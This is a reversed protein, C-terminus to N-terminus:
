RENSIMQNFENFHRHAENYTMEDLIFEGYWVFDFIRTSELFKTKISPNEIEYQYSYNTKNANWNIIGQDTMAKLNKLYLFRVALRYNGAKLSESILQDFDMNNVDEAIFDANNNEMKRKGFLSKISIGQTRLVLMVILAVLLLTFLVIFFERTLVKSFTKNTVDDLWELFNLWWDPYKLKKSEGYQFHKDNQYQKIKEKPPIRLVPAPENITKSALTDQGQVYINNFVLFLFLLYTIYKKFKM